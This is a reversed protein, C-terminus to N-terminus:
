GDGEFAAVAAGFRECAAGHGRENAAPDNEFPGRDTVRQGCSGCTYFFAPDDFQRIPPGVVIDYAVEALPRGARSAEDELSLALGIVQWVIGEGRAVRVYDELVRAAAQCATHAARLGWVPAPYTFTSVAGPWVPLESEPAGAARALEVVANRVAGYPSQGRRGAAADVATIAKAVSEEAMAM